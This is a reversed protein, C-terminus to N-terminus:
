ELVTRNWFEGYSIRARCVHLLKLHRAYLNHLLLDFNESLLIAHELWHKRLLTIIESRNKGLTQLRVFMQLSSFVIQEVLQYSETYTHTMDMCSSNWTVRITEPQLRAAVMGCEYCKGGLKTCSVYTTCKYYVGDCITHIIPTKGEVNNFIHLM